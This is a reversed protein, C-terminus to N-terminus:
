ISLCATRCPDSGIVTFSHPTNPPVVLTDGASMEFTQGEVQFNVKGQRVFIIHAEEHTHTDVVQAVPHNLLLLQGSKLSKCNTNPDELDQSAKYFSVESM